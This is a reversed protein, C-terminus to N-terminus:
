IAPNHSPSTIEEETMKGCGRCRTTHVCLMHLCTMQNQLRRSEEEQLYEEYSKGTNIKSGDEDFVIREIRPKKIIKMRLSALLPVEGISSKKIHYYVTSHDVSFTRAIHNKSYGEQYM